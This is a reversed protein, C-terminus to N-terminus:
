TRVGNNNNRKYLTLYRDFVQLLADCQKSESAIIQGIEEDTKDLAYKGLLQRAKDITMNIGYIKLGNLIM